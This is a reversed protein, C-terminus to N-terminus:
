EDAQRAAQARRRLTGLSSGQLMLCLFGVVIYLLMQGGHVFAAYTLALSTEVGYLNVLTVRTIYHFAGMGGPAIAVGIAGLMMICLTDLLSLNYPGAMDFMLLPIYAMMLYLFWMVLTSVILALRRPSRLVTALGDKFSTLSPRIRRNWLRRLPAEEARIGFSYILAFLITVGLMLVLVTLMPIQSIQAKMPTLFHEQLFDSQDLLLFFTAVLGLLLVLADLIREIVVTGLVGSFSLKEHAALDATRVVEGVRPLAYNVMYGVMTAFFATKLSVRRPGAEPADAPLAELLIQWRWARILHSVMTVAGLPVIWRYDAQRLAEGMENFDVGQLALYLLVGALM